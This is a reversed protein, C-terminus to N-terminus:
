ERVMLLAGAVPGGGVGCVACDADQIQREGAIGWLQYCAEHLHGFGHLRGESLQGGNTNTPLSGSLATHGARIFQGGEGRGCFGLAELWMPVYISFGDYLAALDVDAPKLDTRAWLDQGVDHAAMTTLDDRQDWSDRGTLASGMAEIWIPEQACDQAADPASVITVCAGDIPIDCDFLCLPESIMRASLYDEMSLQKGHFVANENLQANQRQLICQTGLDDRTLDFEHMIRSAFQATWNTASVAGMPLLWQFQGGISQSGRTPVSARHGASQSSSETLARFCLVHRAQGTAVAMAAIMIPSFQAPGDYSSSHWRTQMGLLERAETCGLPSMGPALDSKGPYTTIGDLDSISLGSLTLAKQTAEALLVTAPINLNRGIRSMGVATIAAQRNPNNM